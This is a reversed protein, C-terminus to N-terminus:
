AGKLYFRMDMGHIDYNQAPNSSRKDFAGTVLIEKEFKSM